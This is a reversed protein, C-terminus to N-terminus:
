LQADGLLEELYASGLEEVARFNTAKSFAKWEARKDPLVVVNFLARMCGTGYVMNRANKPADEPLKAAAVEGAAFIEAIDLADVDSLPKLLNFGPLLELPTSAEAPAPAAPEAPEAVQPAAAPAATIPAQASAPTDQAGQPPLTEAFPSTQAPAEGFQNGNVFQTNPM